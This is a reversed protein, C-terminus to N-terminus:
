KKYILIVVDTDRVNGLQTNNMESIRNTFPTYKKSLVQKNKEDAQM